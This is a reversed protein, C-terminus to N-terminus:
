DSPNYPRNVVYQGHQQATRLMDFDTTMLAASMQTISPNITACYFYCSNHSYSWTVCISAELYSMNHYWRPRDDMRNSRSISSIWPNTPTLFDSSRPPVWTLLTVCCESLLLQYACLDKFQLIVIRCDQPDHWPHLLWCTEPRLCSPVSSWLDGQTVDCVHLPPINQAPTCSVREAKVGIQDVPCQFTEITYVSSRLEIPITLLKDLGAM